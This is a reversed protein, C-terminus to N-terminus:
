SDIGRMTGRLWTFKVRPLEKRIQQSKNEDGEVATWFFSRRLHFRGLLPFSHSHTNCTEGGLVTILHLQRKVFIWPYGFLFFHAINWWFVNWIWGSGLNFDERKPLVRPVVRRKGELPLKLYSFNNLKIWFTKGPGSM